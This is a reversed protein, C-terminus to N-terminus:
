RGLCSPLASAHQATELAWLAISNEAIVIHPRALLVDALREGCGSNCNEPFRGEWKRSTPCPHPNRPEVIGNAALGIRVICDGSRYAVLRPFRDDQHAVRRIEDILQAVM